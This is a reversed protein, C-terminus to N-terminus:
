KKKKLSELLGVKEELEGIKSRLEAILDNCGKLSEAAITNNKEDNLEAKYIALNLVTQKNALQNQLEQFNELLKLLDFQIQELNKDRLENKNFAVAFKPLKVVSSRKATDCLQRMNKFYYTFNIETYIRSIVQHVLFPNVELSNGDITIKKVGKIREGVTYLENPCKRTLYKINQEKLYKVHDTLPGIVIEEVEISPLSKDIKLIPARLESKNTLTDCEVAPNNQVCKLCESFDAKLDGEEFKGEMTDILQGVVKLMLDIEKESVNTKTNTINQLFNELEHCVKEEEFLNLMGYAGKCSHLEMLIIKKNKFLENAGQNLLSWINEIKEKVELLGEDLFEDM